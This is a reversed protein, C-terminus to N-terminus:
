LDRCVEVPRQDRGVQQLARYTENLAAWEPLAIWKKLAAATVNRVNVVDIKVDFVAGPVTHTAGDVNLQQTTKATNLTVSVHAKAVVNRLHKRHDQVPKFVTTSALGHTMPNYEFMTFHQDPHQQKLENFVKPPLPSFLLLPSSSLATNTDGGKIYWGGGVQLLDM